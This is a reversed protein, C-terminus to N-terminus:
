KTEGQFMRRAITRLRSEDISQDKPFPDNGAFLKWLGGLFEIRGLTEKGRDIYITTGVEHFSVGPDPDSTEIPLATNEPIKKLEEAVEEWTDRRVDFQLVKYLPRAQWEWGGESRQHIYGIGQGYRVVAVKKGLPCFQWVPLEPEPAPEEQKVREAVRYGYKWERRADSHAPWPSDGYGVDPHADYGQRAIVSLDEKM